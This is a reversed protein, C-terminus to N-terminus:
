EGEKKANKELEELEKKADGEEIVAVAATGVEIGAKEGLEKKTGIKGFPVKKEKCLVPLHMVIEKPEVDEAISVFKAIGRELAKTVENVGIRIKGSKKAKEILSLQLDKSGEAM